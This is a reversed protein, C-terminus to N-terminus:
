RDRRNTSEISACGSGPPSVRILAAVDIAPDAFGAQRLSRARAARKQQDIHRLHRRYLRRLLGPFYRLGFIAARLTWRPTVSNAERLAHWADQFEGTLLLKRGRELRLEAEIATIKAAIIRAQPETLTGSSRTKEYVRIRAQKMFESNGSLGNGLRHCTQVESNFTMLVGNRALRLWLDFDECRNMQEDFFGADLIAKRSVVASSTNVTCREALLAEFTVPPTQPTTAFAIGVPTTGEIHLANAYVLGLTPQNELREIQRTLHQPLWLDDADLFAIYKGGAQRIAANRAASPGRNEQEIYRIKLLYPELASKLAPTDPSGDNVVIIQYRRFTQALVSDLTHAIYNAANYAPIVVTVIPDDATGSALGPIQTKTASV